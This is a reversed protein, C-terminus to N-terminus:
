GDLLGGVAWRGCWSCRREVVAAGCGPCMRELVCKADRLDDAVRATEVRWCSAPWAGLRRVDGPAVPLPLRAFVREPVSM